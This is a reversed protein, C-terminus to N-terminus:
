FPTQEEWVGRNRAAEPSSSDPSPVNVARARWTSGQLPGRERDLRQFQHGLRQPESM